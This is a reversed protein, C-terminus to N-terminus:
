SYPTAAHTGKGSPNLPTAAVNETTDSRWIVAVTGVPASVPGIETVVGTPVAQVAVLKRTFGVTFLKEGIEPGTPVTTVIVPFANVPAVFTWNLPFDAFLKM